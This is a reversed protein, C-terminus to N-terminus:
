LLNRRKSRQALNDLMLAADERLEEDLSRLRELPMRFEPWAVYSVAFVAARRAELSANAFAKEFLEFRRSDYQKPATLAAVNIARVVQEPPAGQNIVHRIDEESYSELAAGRIQEVVKEVDQGSIQLYRLDLFRDEVYNIGTREDATTWIKQYPTGKAAELENFLKWKHIWAILEIDERRVSDKLAVRIREFSM